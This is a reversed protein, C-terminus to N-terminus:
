RKLRFWRMLTHKIWGKLDDLSPPPVYDVDVLNHIRGAGFAEDLTRSFRFGDDNEVPNPVRQAM